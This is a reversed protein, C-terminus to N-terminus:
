HAHGEGESNNMMSLLDYAGAVVIQAGAELAEGFQVARYGGEAAGARIPVPRFRYHTEGKHEEKGDFVFVQNQTGNQVIAAEPLAPEPASDTEILARLYTGPRLRVDPNDLSAYVRVTRDPRTERNILRIRGPWSQGLWPQGPWSQGSREEATSGVGSLRVRQGIQVKPIDSEFVILEAYLAGVGVLEFLVDNAAVYRGRNVRVETVTGAVPSRVPVQRTIKGGELQSMSVGLLALQQRLGEARAKLTGLQATAQQFTKQATVNERSLERQREFEQEQFTLQSQTELFDQQLRIFEPNELVALTQGKRVSQGPLLPTSVVIGGYPTSVSVLQQPPVSLSGNIRILGSLTRQELGGLQIGATKFQAETLEVAGGEEQHGEGEAHVKGEAHEDPKTETAPTKEGEPSSTCSTPLLPLLSIFLVPLLRFIAQISKM